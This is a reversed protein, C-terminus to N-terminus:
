CNIAMNFTSAKGGVKEQASIQAEQGMTTDFTAVQRWIKSEVEITKVGPKGAWVLQPSLHPDYAYRKIKPESVKPEYSVM